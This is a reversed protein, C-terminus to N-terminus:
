RQIPFEFITIPCRIIFNLVLSRMRVHSVIEMATIASMKILNQEPEVNCMLNMRRNKKLEKTHQKTDFSFRCKFYASCIETYWDIWGGANMHRNFRFTKTSYKTHSYANHQPNLHLIHHIPSFPSFYHFCCYGHISYMHALFLSFSFWAYWVTYIYKSAEHHVARQLACFPAKNTASITTTTKWAFVFHSWHCMTWKATRIFRNLEYLICVNYM